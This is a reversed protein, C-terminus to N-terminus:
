KLGSVMWTHRRSLLHDETIFTAVKCVAIVIIIVILAMVQLGHIEYM